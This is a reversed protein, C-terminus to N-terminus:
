YFINIYVENFYESLKNWFIDFKTGRFGNNIRLDMVIDADQLELITRLKEQMEKSLEHPPTSNDGALDNYLLKWVSPAMKAILSYKETVNKRMQHTFYSPIMKNALTLMQAEQSKDQESILDPIKWIFNLTGLYNEHYYRYLTFTCNVQLENIFEYRVKKDQPLYNNLLHLEYFDSNQLLDSIAKFKLNFNKQKYRIELTINDLLNQTPESRSHNTIMENNVSELYSVYKRINHCLEFINSIFSKWYEQGAWLQTVFHIIAKLHDELKERKLQEKKHKGAYYFLNYSSKIKYQSLSLFIEPIVYCRLKLKEHHPDVYWLLDALAKIFGSGTSEYHEGYWGLSEVKLLKVLDNYLLDYRTVFNREKPLRLIRSAKMIECLGNVKQRDEKELNEQEKLTFKIQCPQFKKCLSLNASLGYKVNTWNKTLKNYFQIVIPQDFIDYGLIEFLLDGFTETSEMEVADESLLKKKKYVAAIFWM